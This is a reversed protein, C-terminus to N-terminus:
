IEFIATFSSEFNDYFTLQITNPQVFIGVIVFRAQDSVHFYENFWIFYLKLNKLLSDDLKIQDVEM